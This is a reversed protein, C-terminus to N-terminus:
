IADNFIENKWIDSIVKPKYLGSTTIANGSLYKLQQQDILLDNMKEVFEYINDKPILFGNYGNKIIDSPGSEIDFSVVPLGHSMAEVIVLGFGEYRSTMVYLSADIYHKQINHDKGFLTVSESLGLEHIMNCLNEREEGDGIIKLKWGNEYAKSQKWINLLIDFGKQRTLRGVALVIKQNLQSKIETSITLPNRILVPSASILKYKEYSDNTLAITKFGFRFFVFRIVRWYWKPHNFNIHEYFVCKTKGNINLFACLSLICSLFTSNAIIFNYNSKRVLNFLKIFTKVHFHLMNNKKNKSVVDLSINNFGSLNVGRDDDILTIIDVDFESNLEKALCLIVREVGGLTAFDKTLFAVRNM